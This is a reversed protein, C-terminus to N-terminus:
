TENIVFARSLFYSTFVKCYSLYVLLFSLNKSKLQCTSFPNNLDPNGFSM